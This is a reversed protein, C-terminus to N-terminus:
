KAARDLDKRAELMVKARGILEGQETATLLRFAELLVATNENMERM